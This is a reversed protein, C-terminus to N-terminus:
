ELGKARIYESERQAQQELRHLADPDYKALYQFTWDIPDPHHKKM